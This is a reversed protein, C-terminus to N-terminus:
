LKAKWKIGTSLLDDGEKIIRGEGKLCGILSGSDSRIPIIKAVEKGHKTIILGESDLNDIISLCKEKFAAAGLKKM